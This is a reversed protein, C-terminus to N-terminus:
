CSNESRTDTSVTWSILNSSVSFVLCTLIDLLLGVFYSNFHKNQHSCQPGKNTPLLVLHISQVRLKETPARWKQVSPGWQDLFCWCQGTIPWDTLDLGTHNRDLNTSVNCSGMMQKANTVEVSEGEALFTQLRQVSLNELNAQFIQSKYQAGNM